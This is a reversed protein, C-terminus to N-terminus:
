PSTVPPAPGRNKRIIQAPSFSWSVGLSIGESANTNRGWVSRFVTASVDISGTAALSAGVGLILHDDAALQDHYQFKAGTAPGADEPIRWGGHSLQLSGFGRVTLAPTLFYGMELDAVSRNNWIGLVREPVVFSLRAQSYADPLFSDLQRGLSVGAAVEHLGRGAAVHSFTEYSRSPLGLSVFPTVVLPGTAAMFRAEFRFDQFTGHWSGDDQTPRGGPRHPFGGDYKSFSYPLGVRVTFRDTVGYTLDTVLNNWRMFGRDAEQGQSFVHHRAYYNQYAFSLTAEGKPPLWAQATATSCLSTLLLAALLNPLGRPQRDASM